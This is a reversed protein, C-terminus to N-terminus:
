RPTDCVVDEPPLGTNCLNEYNMGYHADIFESVREEDFCNGKLHYGWATAAFPVDLDPDPAVVLRHPVDFCLADLPFDAYFTELAGVLDQCSEGRAEVLQCNYLLAVASHELTHLLFGVPIPEGYVGFSAWSPYHAGSTPPNSHPTLESCLAVHDGPEQVIACEVLDCAVPDDCSAPTALGGDSAVEAGERPGDPSGTDAAEAGGAADADDTSQSAIPEADTLVGADASSLGDDGADGTDPTADTDGRSTEETATEHEDTSETGNVPDADTNSLDDDGNGGNNSCAILVASVAAPWSGDAFSVLRM